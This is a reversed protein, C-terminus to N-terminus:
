KPLPGALLRLIILLANAFVGNVVIQNKTEGLAIKNLEVVILNVAENM